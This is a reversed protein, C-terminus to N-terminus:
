KDEIVAVNKCVRRLKFYEQLTSANLSNHYGCSPSCLSFITNKKERIIGFADDDYTYRSGHIILHSAQKNFHVSDIVPMSVSFLLPKQTSFEGESGIIKYVEVFYHTQDDKEESRIFAAGTGCQSLAPRQHRRGRCYVTWENEGSIKYSLVPHGAFKTSDEKIEVIKWNELIIKKSRDPNCAEEVVGNECCRLSKLDKTREIFKEEPEMLEQEAERVFGMILSSVEESLRAFYCIQPKDMAIIHMSFLAVFFCFTNNVNLV